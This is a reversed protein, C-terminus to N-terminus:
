SIIKFIKEKIIPFREEVILPSIQSQIYEEFYKSNTIESFEKQLFAKVKEDASLIEEEITTRNDLVYIIDEFDHSTRYDGGRGHFAEFKTALFYPASLIRIEINGVNVKELHEFGPTYWSNTIGIPSNSAPMIDVAVNQFIFSCIANRETRPKFGLENLRKEMKAWEVLGSLQVTLDIDGTPRVEDAAEDDTYISITAGGVFVMSSRLEQLGEAVQQVIATNITKNEM